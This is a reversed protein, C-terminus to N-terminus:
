EGETRRKELSVYLRDPMGGAKGRFLYDLTVDTAECLQRMVLLDDPLHRGREWNIWRQRAVSLLQAM